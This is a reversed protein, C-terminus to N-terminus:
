NVGTALSDVLNFNFVSMIAIKFEKSNSTCFECSVIGRPLSRPNQLFRNQKMREINFGMFILRM